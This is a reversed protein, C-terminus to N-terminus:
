HGDEHNAVEPALGHLKDELHAAGRAPHGAVDDVLDPPLELRMEGTGELVIGAEARGDLQM